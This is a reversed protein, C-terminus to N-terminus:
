GHMLAERTKPDRLKWIAADTLFHHFNVVAFVSAAAATYNVGMEQLMEPFGRYIFHGIIVMLVWYRLGESSFLRSVFSPDDLRKKSFHFTGSVLLYQSGHFFPPIFLWLTNMFTGSALTFALGSLVLLVAPLPPFIGERFFKDILIGVFLMGTAAWLGFSLSLIWEPLPGWFPMELNLFNRHNYEPLTLKRIIVYYASFLMAWKFVNREFPSFRYGWRGCYLMAIGFVQANYHIVVWLLYVNVLAAPWGPLFLAACGLACMALAIWVAYVHFRNYESRDGYIRVWTASTHPNSFFHMLVLSQIAYFDVIGRDFSATAQVYIWGAIWVAGGCCFLLDIAPNVLWRRPATASQTPAEQSAAGFSISPSSVQTIANSM